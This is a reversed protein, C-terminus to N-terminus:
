SPPGSAEGRLADDFDRQEALVDVGVAARHRAAAVGVEGRQDVEDRRHRADLADAEHGRVRDFEAVAQDLGIAVHRLEGIVQVQRHLAAGVAHERQHLAAVGHELVLLLDAPQPFDSRVDAQRGVQDDAEGALRLAIELRM